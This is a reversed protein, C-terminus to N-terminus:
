GRPDGSHRPVELACTLSTWDTTLATESGPQATPGPRPALAGRSVPALECTKELYYGNQSASPGEWVAWLNLTYGDGRTYPQMDLRWLPAERSSQVVANDVRQQMLQRQGDLNLLWREASSWPRNGLEEQLITEAMTLQAVGASVPESQGPLRYVFSSRNLDDAALSPYIELWTQIRFYFQFWSSFLLSLFFLLILKQRVPPPVPKPQLDWGLLNPVAVVLFSILPWTALAPQIWRDTWTGFLFICLIAGAVWPAIPLGFPRIKATEVAWGVGLALYIWGFTALLMVTFDTAGLTRALLSLLWSFLSMYIVTQWSFYRDPVLFDFIAKFLNRLFDIITM